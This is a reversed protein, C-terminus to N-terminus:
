GYPKTWDWSNEDANASFLVDKKIMDGPTAESSGRGFIRLTCPKGIDGETQTIVAVYPALGNALTYIVTAGMYPIM